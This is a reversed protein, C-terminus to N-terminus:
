GQKTYWRCKRRICEDWERAKVKMEVLEGRTDGSRMEGKMKCEKCVKSALLQQQAEIQQQQRAAMEQLEALTMDMRPTAVQLSLYVTFPCVFAIESFSFWCCNIKLLCNDMKTLPAKIRGLKFKFIFIVFTFCRRYWLDNLHMKITESYYILPM